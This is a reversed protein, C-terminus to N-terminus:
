FNLVNVNLLETKTPPSNILLMPLPRHTNTPIELFSVSLSASYKYTCTGTYFFFYYASCTLGPLSYTLINIGLTGLFKLM